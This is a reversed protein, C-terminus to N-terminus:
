KISISGHVTDLEDCPVAAVKGSFMQACYALVVASNRAPIRISNRLVLPENAIEHLAM